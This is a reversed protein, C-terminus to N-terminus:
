PGERELTSTNATRALIAAAREQLICLPKRKKDPYGFHRLAARMSWFHADCHFCRWGTSPVIGLDSPKDTHDIWSIGGVAFASTARASLRGETGVGEM